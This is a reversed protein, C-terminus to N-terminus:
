KDSKCVEQSLVDYSFGQGMWIEGFDFDGRNVFVVVSKGTDPFM